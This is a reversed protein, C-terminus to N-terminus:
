SETRVAAVMEIEVLGQSPISGAGLAIRAHRGREGLLEMLVDSAADMVAAHREFEVTARIFGRVMLIREISDLGGAAHALASLARLIALEAARRAPAIDDDRGLLGTVAKTGERGVQGAVYAIGNHIVVPTYNGGPGPPPPLEFPM